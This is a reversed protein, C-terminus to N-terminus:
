SLFFFCASTCITSLEYGSTPCDVRSLENHQTILRLGRARYVGSRASTTARTVADNFSSSLVCSLLRSHLPISPWWCVNQTFRCVSPNLRRRLTSEGGSSATTVSARPSKTPRVLRHNVVFHLWFRSARERERRSLSLPLTRQHILRLCRM